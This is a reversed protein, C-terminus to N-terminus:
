IVSETLRIVDDGRERLPPVDIQVVSLRYFLDFRFKGENSETRLDRNSAAIVRVDLNIDKLGGVRRFRREEFVRLLKQTYGSSPNASRMLSCRGVKPRSSCAKKELKRM